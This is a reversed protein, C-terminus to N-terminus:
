RFGQWDKVPPQCILQCRCPLQLLLLYYCMMKERCFSGIPRLEMRVCLRKDSAIMAEAEDCSIDQNVILGASANVAEIGGDGRRHVVEGFVSGDVFGDM